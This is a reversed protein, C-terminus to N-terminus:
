TSFTLVDDIRAQQATQVLARALVSGPEANNTVLAMLSTVSPSHLRLVSAGAPPGLTRIWTHPVISAWRGTGVHAFLAVVSDTELQPRVALDQTALADDIIQRGRMGTTLLCLPLATADSWSITDSKGSLETSAIVVQQEEYLPTVLLDATDQRDPYLIGADLRSAASANSSTPRDCIPRSNFRPTDPLCELDLAGIAARVAGGFRRHRDVVAALGEEEIMTLSEALGCILSVSSTYATLNEQHRELELRWDFYSRPLDATKSFEWARPSVIALGLGPPLGLCKQSTGVALDAQWREPAVDAGGLDCICDVVILADTKKRIAPGLIEIPHEVGTSTDASTMFVARVDPHKDVLDLVQDVDCVRGWELRLELPECGYTSLIRAWREGFKGASVTIAKAGHRMFNVVAGEMAGSGSSTFMLPEWAPTQWLRRLQQRAKALIARFEPARHHFVPAGLVARVREHVAVPGPAFLKLSTNM